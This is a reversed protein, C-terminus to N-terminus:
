VGAPYQLHAACIMIKDLFCPRVAPVLRAVLAMSGEDPAGRSSTSYILEVMVEVAADFTDTANLGELAASVLPHQALQMGPLGGGPTLKLWSAFVQLVRVRTNEGALLM